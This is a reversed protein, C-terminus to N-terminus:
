RNYPNDAETPTTGGYGEAAGETLGGAASMGKGV